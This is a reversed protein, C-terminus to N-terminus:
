SINSQSMKQICHCYKTHSHYQNCCQGSHVHDRYVCQCNRSHIHGATLNRCCRWGHVHKMGENSVLPHFSSLYHNCGCYRRHIKRVHEETLTHVQNCHCYTEHVWKFHSDNISPQSVPLPPPPPSPPLSPLYPQYHVPQNRSPSSASPLQFRVHQKRKEQEQIERAIREDKEIQERKKREEEEQQELFKAFNRDRIEQEELLQKRKEEELLNKALEQDKEEQYQKQLVSKWEQEALEQALVEDRKQQELRDHQKLRFFEQESELFKEKEKERESDLSLSSFQSDVGELIDNTNQRPQNKFEIKFSQVQTTVPNINSNLQNSSFSFASSNNSFGYNYSRYPQHTRQNEAM